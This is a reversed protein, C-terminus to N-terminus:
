ITYGWRKLYDSFRENIDNLVQEPLENKYGGYGGKRFHTVPIKRWVQKGNKSMKEIKNNDVSEVIKERSIPLNWHHFIKELEKKTDDWLSEYTVLTLGHEVYDVPHNIWEYRHVVKPLFYEYYFSEIDNFYATPDEFKRYDETKSYHYYSVIIDRIDRIIYVGAILDSRLYVKRSFPTHFM